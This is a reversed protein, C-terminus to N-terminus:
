GMYDCTFITGTKRNDQDTRPSMGYWMVDKRKKPWSNSYRVLEFGNQELYDIADQLKSFVKVPELPCHVRRPGLSDQKVCIEVYFCTKM